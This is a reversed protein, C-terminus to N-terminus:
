KKLFGSISDMLGGGNQDPSGSLLDGAIKGLDMGGTKGQMFGSLMENFNIDGAKGGAIASIVGNMDISGDKQDAVKGALQSLILPLVQAIIGQSVPQALNFKSALTDMLSGSIQNVIPNGQIKDAHTGKSFLDMVDTLNGKSVADSLGGEIAQMIAQQVGEHHQNPVAPNDVVAEQTNQQILKFLIDLM